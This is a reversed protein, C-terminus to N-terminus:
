SVIQQAIAATKCYAKTVEVASYHRYRIKEVLGVSDNRIINTEHEDLFQETFPGTLDRQKKASEIHHRSLVWEKPIRSELDIVKLKARDQWSLRTTPIKM